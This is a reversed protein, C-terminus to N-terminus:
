PPRRSRRFQSDPEARDGGSTREARGGRLRLIPVSEIEGPARTPGFWPANDRIRAAAVHRSRRWRIPPRRLPTGLRVEPGSIESNRMARFRLLQLGATRDHAALSTSSEGRFGELGESARVTRVGRERGQMPTIVPPKWTGDLIAQDACYARFYLSFLGQPAPLRQMGQRQRAIQSRRLADPLREPNFKLTKNKTGLSYRNLANPPLFAGCRLPDAVLLGQRTSHNPIAYAPQTPFTPPHSALSAHSAHVVIHAALEESCSLGRM